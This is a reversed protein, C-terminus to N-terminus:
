RGTGFHAAQALWADLWAQDSPGTGNKLSDPWQAKIIDLFGDKATGAVVRLQDDFQVWIGSLPDRGAIDTNLFIRGDPQPALSLERVTLRSDGMRAQFPAPYRPIVVRFAASDPESSWPNCLSDVSAGRWHNEDLMVLTPGGFAPANNVGAAVAEDKGDGDFDATLARLLHGKHAYQGVRRGERDVLCIASPHFLGHRFCVMMEQEGDGDVDLFNVSSCNMTAPAVMDEGLARILQDLDPQMEWVQQGTARDLALLRGGGPARSNFGVLLLGTDWAAPQCFAMGADAPVHWLELGLITDTATLGTKDLTWVAHSTALGWTFWGIGALIVLALPLLWIGRSRGPDPQAEGALEGNTSHGNHMLENFNLGLAEAIGMLTKEQARERSDTELNHITRYTTHALDALDAKSLNRGERLM